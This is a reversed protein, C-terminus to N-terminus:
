EAQARAQGRGGSEARAEEAAVTVLDIVHTLHDFLAASAAAADRSAIAAVIARHDRATLEGRGPTAFTAPPDRMVSVLEDVLRPLLVGGGISGIKRHFGIDLRVLEAIRPAPRGLESEFAACAAELDAVDLPTRREAAQGAAQSELSRRITLVELLEDRHSFLWKRWSDRVTDAPARRVFAGRGRRVEIAGTAQLSRLAERVIVRSVDFQLALERESPLRGGAPIAGSEIRETLAETVLDALSESRVPQFTAPTDPM